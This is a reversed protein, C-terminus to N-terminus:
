RYLKIKMNKMVYGFVPLTVCAGVALFWLWHIGSSHFVHRGLVGFGAVILSVFASGMANVHHFLWNKPKKKVMYVGKGIWFVALLSLVHLFSFSGDTLIVFSSLVSIGMIFVFLRGVWRHIGDGKPRSYIVVGLALAILAGIAHVWILITM